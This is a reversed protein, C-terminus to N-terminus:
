AYIVAHRFRCWQDNPVLHVHDIHTALCLPSESKNEKREMVRMM